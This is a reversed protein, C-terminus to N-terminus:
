NRRLRMEQLARLEARLVGVLDASTMAELRELMAEIVASESAQWVPVLSTGCRPCSAHDSEEMVVIRVTKLGRQLASPEFNTLIIRQGCHCRYSIAVRKIERIKRLLGRAVQRAERKKLM